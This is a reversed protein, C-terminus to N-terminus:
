WAICMCPPCACSLQGTCNSAKSRLRGGRWNHEAPSDTPKMTFSTVMEPCTSASPVALASFVLLSTKGSTMLSISGRITVCKLVWGPIVYLTGFCAITARDVVQRGDRFVAVFSYHEFLFGVLWLRCPVRCRVTRTNSATSDYTTSIGNMDWCCGEPWDVAPSSDQVFSGGGLFSM